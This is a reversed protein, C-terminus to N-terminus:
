KKEQSLSKLIDFALEERKLKAIRYGYLEMGSEIVSSVEAILKNCIVEDLIAENLNNRMNSEFEYQSADFLNIADLVGQNVADRTGKTQTVFLDLMIQMRKSEM